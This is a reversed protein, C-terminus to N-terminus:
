AHCRDNSSEGAYRPANDIASAISQSQSSNTPEGALNSSPAGFGTSYAPITSGVGAGRSWNDALSPSSSSFSRHANGTELYVSSAGQSRATEPMMM